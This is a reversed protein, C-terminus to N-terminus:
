YYSFVISGAAAGTPGTLESLRGKNDLTQTYSLSFTPAGGSETGAALNLVNRSLFDVFGGNNTQTINNLLPGIADSITAHFAPNASTNYKYQVDGQQQDPQGPIDATYITEGSMNGNSMYLTDIQNDQSTGEFWDDIVVNNNPYSYYTVYGSGSLSTDKSIRGQGDYSLLHYDGYNGYTVDYLYYYSPYTNPSQYIFQVTYSNYLPYGSTTDYFTQSFTDLLHATSDYYFSDVIKQQPAYSVVASLYSTAPSSSGGSNSKKCSFILILTLVGLSLSLPYKKM